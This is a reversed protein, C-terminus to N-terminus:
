VGDFVVSIIIPVSNMRSGSSICISMSWAVARSSCGLEFGLRPTFRPASSISSTFSGFLFSVLVASCGPRWGRADVDFEDTADRELGIATPFGVFLPLFEIFDLATAFDLASDAGAGEDESEKTPM